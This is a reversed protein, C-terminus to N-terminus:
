MGLKMEKPRLYIDQSLKSFYEFKASLFFPFNYKKIVIGIVNHINILQAFGNM